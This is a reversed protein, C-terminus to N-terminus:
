AAAKEKKMATTMAMVWAVIGCNHITYSQAKPNNESNDKDSCYYWYKQFQKPVTFGNESIFKGAEPMGHINKDHALLSNPKWFDQWSSLKKGYNSLRVALTVLSILYTSKFMETPILLILEDKADLLHAAMVVGYDENMQKNIVELNQLFLDRDSVKRLLFYMGEKNKELKNKWSYIGFEYGTQYYAVCDNLFDKCIWWGSTDKFENESTRLLCKWLLPNVQSEEAYHSTNTLTLKINSMIETQKTDPIYRGQSVILNRAYIGFM